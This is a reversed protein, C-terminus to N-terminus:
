NLMDDMDNRSNLTEAIEKLIIWEHEDRQGVREMGGGEMLSGAGDDGTM